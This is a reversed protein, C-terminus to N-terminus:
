VYRRCLNAESYMRHQYYSWRGMEHEAIEFIIQVEDKPKTLPMVFDFHLQQTMVAVEM